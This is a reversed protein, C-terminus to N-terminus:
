EWTKRKTKSTEQSENGQIAQLRELFLAVAEAETKPRRHGRHWKVEFLREGSKLETVKLDVYRRGHGGPSGIVMQKTIDFAGPSALLLAEITTPKDNAM